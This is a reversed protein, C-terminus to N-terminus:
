EGSAALKKAAAAAEATGSRGKGAKKWGSVTYGQEALCLSTAQKIAREKKNKRAKAFGWTGLVGALPLATLAAASVIRSM